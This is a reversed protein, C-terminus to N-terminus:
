PIRNLTRQGPKTCVSKKDSASDFIPWNEWRFSTVLWIISFTPISVHTEAQKRKEHQCSLEHFRCKIITKYILGSNEKSTKCLLLNTDWHKLPLLTGGRAPSPHFLSRLLGRPKGGVSAIRWKEKMTTARPPSLGACFYFSIYLGMNTQVNKQCNM